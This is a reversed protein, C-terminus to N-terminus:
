GSCPETKVTLRGIAGHARTLELSTRMEGGIASAWEEFFAHGTRRASRCIGAGTRRRSFPKGSLERASILVSIPQWVKPRCPSLQLSLRAGSLCHFATSRAAFPWIVLGPSRSQVVTMIVLDREILNLPDSDSRCVIRQITSVIKGCRWSYQGVALIIFWAM